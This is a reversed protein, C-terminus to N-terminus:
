EVIGLATDKCADGALTPELALTTSPHGPDIPRTQLNALLVCHLCYRLSLYSGNLRVQVVSENSQSRVYQLPHVVQRPEHVGPAGCQQMSADAVNKPGGLRTSPDMHSCGTYPIETEMGDEHGILLWSCLTWIRHGASVNFGFIALPQLNM